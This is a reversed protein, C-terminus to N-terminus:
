EGKLKEIVAPDLAPAAEGKRRIVLALRPFVFIASLVLLALPLLYQLLSFLAITSDLARDPGTDFWASHSYGFPSWKKDMAEPVIVANLFFLLYYVAVPLSFFLFMGAIRKWFIGPKLILGLVKLSDLEDRIGRFFWTFLVVCLPSFLYPIVTVLDREMLNLKWTSWYYTGILLAPGLFVFSGFIILILKAGKPRLFGVAFGAAATLALGVITNLVSYGLSSFFWREIHPLFRPLMETGFPEWFYLSEPSHPKSTFGLGIVPGFLPLIFATVLFFALIISIVAGVITVVIRGRSWVSDKLLKGQSRPFVHISIINRTRELLLMLGLGLLWLPIILFLISAAGESFQFSLSFRSSYWIVNPRDLFALRIVPTGELNLLYFGYMGIAFAALLPWVRSFLEKFFRQQNLITTAMGRAVALFMTTGMPLSFALGNCLLVNFDNGLIDQTGKPYISNRYFLYTVAVGSFVIVLSLIAQIVVRAGSRLNLLFISLGLPATILLLLQLYFLPWYFTTQLSYRFPNGNFLTEFNDLGVYTMKASFPDYDSVSLVTTWIIPFVFLVIVMFFPVVLIFWGVINRNISPKGIDM